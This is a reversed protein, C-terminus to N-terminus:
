WLTLVMPAILIYRDHPDPIEDPYFRQTNGWRGNEGLPYVWACVPANSIEDTRRIALTFLPIMYMAYLKARDRLAM